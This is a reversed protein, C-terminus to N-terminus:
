ITKWNRVRAKTKRKGSSEPWELNLPIKKDSLVMANRGETETIKALADLMDDHRPVPFAVYEEERFAKVLDQTKGEFDVVKHTEPLMINGNEFLPVLRKIRDIKSSPGAVEIIDFRYKKEEMVKQIYAIDSQMGYQEYRVQIPRYQRHLEILRETRETLNLRDRIEPVAYYRGDDGLGVAWISTYDNHKRKGNAADVLLYWNCNEPEGSEGYYRLWERKFGQSSDAVPNLLMQSSYVYSGQDQLKEDLQAQSLLVPEGNISGDKTAPYIRPEFTGRDLVEAYSDSFHYRTGIM